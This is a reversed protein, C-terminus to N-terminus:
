RISELDPRVSWRGNRGTVLGDVEVGAILRDGYTRHFDMTKARAVHGVVHGRHQISIANSDHPNHPQAILKLGVERRQWGREDRPTGRMMQQLLDRYYSEGVINYDYRAWNSVM